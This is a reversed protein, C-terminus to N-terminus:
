LLNKMKQTIDPIKGPQETEIRQIPEERILAESITSLAVYMGPAVVSVDDDPQGFVLLIKASQDGDIKSIIKEKFHQFNDLADSCNFMM